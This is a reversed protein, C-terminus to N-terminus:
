VLSKEAKGPSVRVCILIIGSLTCAICNWYFYRFDTDIQYVFFQPLLYLLPSLLLLLLPLFIRQGKVFFAPVLLLINLLLWFWPKMYPMRGQAKMLEKMKRFVRNGPEHFNFESPQVTYWYYDFYVDTRKKVRLFYLYGDYRNHLYTLPHKSIANLWAKQLVAISDPLVFIHKNDKNWWIHDFSATSFHARIYATDFEANQYLFSPFVNQGTKVYIGSLDQLYLKAEAYQKTPKIVKNQLVMIAFVSVLCICAATVATKIISRHKFQLAALLYFLPLAGPLANIRVWMGYILLVLVILVEWRKMKRVHVKAYFMMSFALLWAFAMHVDKIIYGAFNQVFPACALLVILIKWGINKISLGLIACSSWLLVLQFCLM